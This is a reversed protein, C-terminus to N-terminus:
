RSPFSSWGRPCGLPLITEWRRPFWPLTGGSSACIHVHVTGSVLGASDDVGSVTSDISMLVRTVISFDGGMNMTM